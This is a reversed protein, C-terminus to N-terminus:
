GLRAYAVFQPNEQINNSSYDKMELCGKYLLDWIDTIFCFQKWHSPKESFNFTVKKILIMFGFIFHSVKSDLFIGLLRSLHTFNSPIEIKTYVSSLIIGKSLYSLAFNLVILRPM